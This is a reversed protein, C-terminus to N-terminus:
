RDVCDTTIRGIICASAVFGGAPLFEPADLCGDAVEALTVPHAALWQRLAQQGIRRLKERM